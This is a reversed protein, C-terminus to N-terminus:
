SALLALALGASESRQMEDPVCVEIEGGPAGANACPALADDSTPKSAAGESRATRSADPQAGAKNPILLSFM